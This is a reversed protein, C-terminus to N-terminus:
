DTSPYPLEIHRRVVEHDGAAREDIGTRADV